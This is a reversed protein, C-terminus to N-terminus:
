SYYLFLYYIFGHNQSAWKIFKEQHMMCKSENLTVVNSPQDSKRRCSWSYCISAIVQLGAYSHRSKPSNQPMRAEDLGSLLGMDEEEEEEEEDGEHSEKKIEKKRERCDRWVQVVREIGQAQPDIRGAALVYFTPQVMM